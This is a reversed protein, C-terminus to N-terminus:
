VESDISDPFHVHDALLHNVGLQTSNVIRVRESWNERFSATSEGFAQAMGALYPESHSLRSCLASMARRAQPFLRYGPYLAHGMDDPPSALALIMFFQALQFHYEEESAFFSHLRPTNRWLEVMYNTSYYSNGLLAEAWFLERRKVLPQNSFRGNFDEAEIPNQLIIRLIEFAEESLAKAGSLLLLRWALLSPAGQAFKISRGPHPHESISILDGSIRLGVNVGPNWQEEVSTLVFEEVNKLLPAIVDIYTHAEELIKDQPIQSHGERQNLSNVTDRIAPLLEARTLRLVTNASQAVGQRALTRTFNIVDLGDSSAGALSQAYKIEQPEIREPTQIPIPKLTRGLFDSVPNDPRDPNSDIEALLERIRNTFATKGDDTTWDYIHYAYARLDFPIDAEHQAILITRDKLSHRVGLEYFVNANHDTLDALVVHSEKLEQLISAVINGRPAISRRCEYDLGAEEIAPKFLSEFICTWNEGTCSATTSFPMIVFCIRPM